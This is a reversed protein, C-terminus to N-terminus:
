AKVVVTGAAMDGIRQKRGSTLMVIFGVLYLVPLSDVIRLLTRIIVKQATLEGEVAAVRLGMIMKGLTQGKKYELGFYYGVVILIYIIFAPGTLSVSFSSGDDDSGANSDGFIAAMVVFVVAIVVIDILGAVIRSGTVDVVAAPAPSTTEENMGRLM